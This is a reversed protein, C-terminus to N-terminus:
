RRWDFCASSRLPRPIDSTRHAASTRRRLRSLVRCPVRRRTARASSSVPLRSSSSVPPRDFSSVPPRDSSSVPPLDSSSVPPLDSSSVPLRISIPSPKASVLVLARAADHHLLRPRQM